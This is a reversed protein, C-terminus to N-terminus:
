LEQVTNCLVFDARKVDKFAKFLIRYVVTNTDVDKDSVQLYSMLDKPVIAKVGPIYDIVDERNDLSKFHGNSILLDVHYYLNLVLAPQTWFSVNVLNHKDCIMSSWVYFTDAILCTVPSDDRSSIKTLLDDVHASFVHLIGEFFQDHNLSRDFALPFGDSVTTYTAYILTAPAAPQPSSTELTVTALPPSTTTSPTPTSSLSPSAM